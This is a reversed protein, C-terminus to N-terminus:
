SAGLHSLLASNLIQIETQPKDITDVLIFSNDVLKFYNKGKEDKPQSKTGIYVVQYTNVDLYAHRDKIDPSVARGHVDLYRSISSPHIRTVDFKVGRYSSFRALDISITCRSKREHVKDLTQLYQPNQKRRFEILSVYPSESNYTKLLERLAIFAKEPAIFDFDPTYSLGKRVTDEANGWCVTSSSVHPHTHGQVEINNAYPSISIGRLNYHLFDSYNRSDKAPVDDYDEFWVFPTWKILFSGMNIKSAKLNNAESLWIDNTKFLIKIYQLEGNEPVQISELNYFSSNNVLDIICLKIRKFASQMNQYNEIRLDGIPRAIIEDILKKFSEVKAMKDIKGANSQAVAATLNKIDENYCRIDSDIDTIHRENNIVQYKLKDIEVQRNDHKRMLALDIKALDPTSFDMKPKTPLAAFYDFLAKNIFSKSTNPTNYLAILDKLKEPTILAFDYSMMQCAQQVYNTCGQTLRLEAIRKATMRPKKVPVPPDTPLADTLSLCSMPLSWQRGLEQARPNESKVTEIYIAGYRVAAVKVLDGKDLPATHRSSCVKLTRGVLSRVTSANFQPTLSM